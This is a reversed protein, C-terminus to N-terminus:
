RGIIPKQAALLLIYKTLSGQTMGFVDPAFVEEFYKEEQPTLNM